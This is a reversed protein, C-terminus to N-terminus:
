NAPNATFHHGLADSLAVFIRTSLAMCRGSSPNDPLTKSEKCTGSMIDSNVFVIVTTDSATDYFVSSNYGPLDGDHGLWGDICGFADGYGGAKPISALRDLQAKRDLVGHGTALTRGWLLMDSITSTMQGATWAFTPNWDTSNVPTFDGDPTGQLTFGDAHPDPLPANGAPMATHTLGLPTLIGDQLVSVYPEGTVKQIVEGLLVFNTNSYNFKAGPEFVPKLAFSASLLQEPSWEAQPNAFWANQLDTNLTYSALGSTMTILERLTIEDGNPVGKVYKDIHDDLSLKGEGALQLVLTGTFTKTVSGIRQTEALTMARGTDPDAVGYAKMWRGKPTQVAVIAGPTSAQAKGAIAAADLASVLKAPLPGTPLKSPADVVATPDAVCGAASSRAPTADHQASGSAACGTLAAATVALALIGGIRRTLRRPSPTTM